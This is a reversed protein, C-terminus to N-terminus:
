SRLSPAPADIVGDGVMAARRGQERPAIAIRDKDQPLVGAHVEDIAIQAGVHDAVSRADGTIMPVKTVGLRHLEAVAAASDPRVAEELEFSALVHDDDILHLM